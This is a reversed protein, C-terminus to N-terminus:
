GHNVEHNELSSGCFPCVAFESLEKENDTISGIVNNIHEKKTKIKYNIDELSELLDEIQKKSQTAASHETIITDLRELIAVKNKINNEKTSIITKKDEIKQDVESLSDLLTTISEYTNFLESLEKVTGSLGELKNTKISIIDKKDTIAKETDELTELNSKIIEEFKNFKELGEVDAKLKNIDKTKLDIKADYTNIEGKASKLDEVSDNQLESIAEQEKSKSIFDFLQYPTKSILFPYDLQKWFNLRFREGSVEVESMNLMEGVEPIQKQGIKSLEEGDLIYKSKGAKKAKNWIINHGNDEISVECEDADYNIFSNGGKNNIASEIARIISSKGNNSAGVIVTVGQNFELEAEKIAQYNKIKVKM